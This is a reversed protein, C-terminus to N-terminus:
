LSTLAMGGFKLYSAAVADVRTEYAGARQPHTSQPMTCGPLPPLTPLAASRQTDTIRHHPGLASRTQHGVNGSTTYPHPRAAM